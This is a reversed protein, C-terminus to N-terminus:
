GVPVNILAFTNEVTSAGQPTITKIGVHIDYFVKRDFTLYFLKTSEHTHEDFILWLYTYSRQTIQLGMLGECIVNNM